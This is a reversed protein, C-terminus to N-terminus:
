LEVDNPMDILTAVWFVNVLLFRSVDVKGIFSEATLMKKLQNM